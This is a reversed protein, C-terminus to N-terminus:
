VLKDKDPKPQHEFKRFPTPRAAPRDGGGAAADREGTGSGAPTPKPKPGPAAEASRVDPTPHPRTVTQTGHSQSRLTSLDLYRRVYRTFQPYAIGLEAAHATWIAKLPRGENVQQQLQDKLALFAVRGAGWATTKEPTPRRAM